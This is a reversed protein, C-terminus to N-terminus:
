QLGKLIDKIQKKLKPLEKKVVDWMLDLDVGFYQHILKDRTGIIKKWEISPYKNRFSFPLNKAAEGLLEIKRLIASQRLNNRKFDAKSLGQSFNEIDEIFQLMHEIFVFPNKKM